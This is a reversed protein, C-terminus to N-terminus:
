IVVFMFRNADDTINEWTGGAVKDLEEDTLKEDAIKKEDAM